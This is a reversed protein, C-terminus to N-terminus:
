RSGAYNRAKDPSSIYTHTSLFYSLEHPHRLTLGFPELGRTLIHPVNPRELFGFTVQVTIINHPYHRV